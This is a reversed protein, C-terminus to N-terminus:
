HMGGVHHPAKSTAEGGADDVMFTDQVVMQLCWCLKGFGVLMLTWNVVM